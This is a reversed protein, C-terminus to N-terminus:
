VANRAVHERAADVLERVEGSDPLSAALREVYRGRRVEKFTAPFNLDFVWSIYLLKADEETRIADIPVVRRECIARLAEASCFRGAGAGFESVARNRRAGICFHGIMVRWIDLKDADRLLKLFFLSRADELPELRARNHHAIARTVHRTEIPSLGSLLGHRDIVQLGLAAHNESDQDRFTRYRAFQPFRGVDHLLAIVTGLSLERPGLDLRRGLRALAMCVRATHTAKMKFVRDPEPDGTYFTAVYRTFWSKLRATDTAM